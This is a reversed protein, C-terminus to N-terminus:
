VAAIYSFTFTPLIAAEKFLEALHVTWLLCALGPGPALGRCHVWLCWWGSRGLHTPRCARILHVTLTDSHKHVLPATQDCWAHGVSIWLWSLVCVAVLLSLVCKFKNHLSHGLLPLVSFDKKNINQEMEWRNISVHAIYLVHKLRKLWSSENYTRGLGELWNSTSGALFFSHFHLFVLYQLPMAWFYLFRKAIQLATM